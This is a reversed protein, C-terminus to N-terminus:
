SPLAENDSDILAIWDTTCNRMLNLKNHYAGLREPNIIFRFKPHSGWPQAKIQAVDEGTEDAIVIEDM